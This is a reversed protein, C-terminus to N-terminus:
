ESDQWLQGSTTCASFRIDASFGWIVCVAM